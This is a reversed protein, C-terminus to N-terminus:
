RHPKSSIGDFYTLLGLSCNPCFGGHVVIENPLKPYKVSRGSISFIRQNYNSCIPCSRSTNVIVLDNNFRRNNALCEHIRKLNNIRKDRFEPHRQYINQEEFGAWADDGTKQIYKVLRLYEKESLLSKPACDSIVNSKKLCAIALNLRGNKKHETAKRQLKYCIDGSNHSRIPIADIAELSDMSYQSVLPTNYQSVPPTSNIDYVVNYSMSNQVPSVSSLNIAARVIDYIWGIGFLGFTLLYLFGMGIKGHMFKHVGLPGLFITILLDIM